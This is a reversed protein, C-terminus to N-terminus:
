SCVEAPWEVEFHKTLEDSTILTQVQTAPISYLWAKTEDENFPLVRYPYVGDGAPLIVFGDDHRLVCQYSPTCVDTMTDALKYEAPDYNKKTLGLGKAVKSLTQYGVDQLLQVNVGEPIPKWYEDYFKTTNAMLDAKVKDLSDAKMPFFPRFLFKLNDDNIVGLFRRIEELTPMRCQTSSVSGAFTTGTERVWAGKPKRMIIRGDDLSFATGNSALCLYAPVTLGDTSINKHMVVKVGSVEEVLAKMATLEYDSWRSDKKPETVMKYATAQAETLGEPLMPLFKNAKVWDVSMALLAGALWDRLKNCDVTM